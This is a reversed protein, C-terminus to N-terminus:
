LTAKRIYLCWALFTFVFELTSYLVVVILLGSTLTLVIYAYAPIIEWPLLGTWVLLFRLGGMIVLLIVLIVIILKVPLLEWKIANDLTTQFISPTNTKLSWSKGLSIQLQGIGFMIGLAIAMVVAARWLTIVYFFEPITWKSELIYLAFLFVKLTVAYILTKILTKLMSGYLPSEKMTKALTKWLHKNRPYAKM